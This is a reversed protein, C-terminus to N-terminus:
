GDSRTIGRYIELGIDPVLAKDMFMITNKILHWQFLDHKAALNHRVSIHGSCILYTKGIRKLLM